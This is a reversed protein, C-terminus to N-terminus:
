FWKEFKNGNETEVTVIFDSNNEGIYQMYTYNTCITMVDDILTEGSSTTVTVSTEGSSAPLSIYLFGDEYECTIRSNNPRKVRPRNSATTLQANEPADTDEAKTNFTVCSLLLCILLTSKKM